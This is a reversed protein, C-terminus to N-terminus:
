GLIAANITPTVQANEPHPLTTVTANELMADSVLGAEKAAQWAEAVLADVMGGPKRFNKDALLALREDTDAKIFFNKKVKTEPM